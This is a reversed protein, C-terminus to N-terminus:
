APLTALVTGPQGTVAAQAMAFPDVEVHLKSMKEYHAVPFPLGPAVHAWIRVITDLSDLDEYNVALLPLKTVRAVCELRNEMTKLGERVAAEDLGSVRAFSRVCEEIPRLVMVLAPRNLLQSLRNFVLVNGSDSNGVFQGPSNWIKGAMTEVDKVSGSIDHHCFVNGVTLFSSLWATRSRPLSLILFPRKKKM